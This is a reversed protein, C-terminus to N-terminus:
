GPKQLFGNKKKTLHFFKLKEEKKIQKEKGVNKSKEIRKRRQREIAKKKKNEELELKKKAKSKHYDQWSKSTVVSPLSERQRKKEEKPTEPWFLAKKFPSPVNPLNTIPISKCAISSNADEENEPGSNHHDNEATVLFNELVSVEDTLMNKMTKWVTFLLKDEINGDWTERANFLEIKM